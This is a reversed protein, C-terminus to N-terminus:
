KKKLKNLLIAFLLGLLSGVAFAIIIGIVPVGFSTITHLGALFPISSWWGTLPQGLVFRVVVVGSIYLVAFVIGSILATKNKNIKKIVAEKTMKDGAM